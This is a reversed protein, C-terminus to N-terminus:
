DDGGGGHGHGHGHGHPHPPHRHPHPGPHPTPKAAPVVTPTVPAPAHVCTPADAVLANVGSMLREELSAPVRHANVLRRARASLRAIDRQQACAGERAIRTSLDILPQADTRTLHPASAGGCGAVLGLVVLLALRRAM